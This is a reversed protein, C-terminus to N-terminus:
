RILDDIHEFVCRNGKSHAYWFEKGLRIEGASHIESVKLRIYHRGDNVRDHHKDYGVGQTDFFFLIHGPTAAQAIAIQFVM